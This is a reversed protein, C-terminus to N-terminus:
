ATTTTIGIRQVSAWDIERNRTGEETLEGIVLADGQSDVLRGTITGDPGTIEYLFDYLEPRGTRATEIEVAARIIAQADKIEV